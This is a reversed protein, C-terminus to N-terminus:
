LGKRINYENDYTNKESSPKIIKLLTSLKHETETWESEPNSDITIGGGAYLYIDKKDTQIRGSRLNAYSTIDGKSDIYGIVGGYFDRKFNENASIAEISKARPFGSLAPTPVLQQLIKIASISDAPFDASIDTALHEIPGAERSHPGDIHIHSCGVKRLTNVIFDTVIQQEEINKADWRLQTESSPKQSHGYSLNHTSVDETALFRKRTGALALSFLKNGETKVVLEPSAGIWTGSIESSFLFVCAHPYAECLRSFLISLKGVFSTKSIRAAVIKCHPYGEEILQRLITKYSLICNLHYSKETSNYDARHSTKEFLIDNNRAWEEIEKDSFNHIDDPILYIDPNETFRSYIFGSSIERGDTKLIHSSAGRVVSGNYAAVSSEDPLRLLYFNM